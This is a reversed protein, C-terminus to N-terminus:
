GDDGDTVREVYALYERQWEAFDDVITELSAGVETLSYQVKIPRDDVVERNVLHMEELGELADSLAKDSIGDLEDKLENYRLSDRDLLVEVITRTWKRSLFEIAVAAQSDGEDIASKFVYERDDRGM